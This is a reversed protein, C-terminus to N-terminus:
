LSRINIMADVIEYSLKATFYPIPFDNNGSFMESYKQNSIFRQNVLGAFNDRLTVCDKLKVESAYVGDSNSMRPNSSKKKFDM